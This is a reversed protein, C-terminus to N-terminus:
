RKRLDKVDEIEVSRDFGIGVFYCIFTQSTKTRAKAGVWSGVKSEADGQIRM